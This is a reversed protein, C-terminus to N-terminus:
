LVKRYRVRATVNIVVDDVYPHSFLFPSILFPFSKFTLSAQPLRRIQFWSDTCDPGTILYRQHAGSGPLYIGFPTLSKVQINEPTLELSNVFNLQVGLLFDIYDYDNKDTDNRKLLPM